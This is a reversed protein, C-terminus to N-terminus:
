IDPVPVQKKHTKTNQGGVKVTCSNSSESIKSLFNENNKALTVTLNQVSM